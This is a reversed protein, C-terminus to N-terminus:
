DSKHSSGDRRPGCTMGFLVLVAAFYARTTRGGQGKIGALRVLVM